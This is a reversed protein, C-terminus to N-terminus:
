LCADNVWVGLRTITSAGESSIEIYYMYLTKKVRLAEM